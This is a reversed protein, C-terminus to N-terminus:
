RYTSLDSTVDLCRTTVMLTKSTVDLSRVDRRSMQVDRRSMQVDRRSIQVHGRSVQVDGNSNQVDRRSIQVDRPSMQLDRQSALLLPRLDTRAQHIWLARCWLPTYLRRHQGNSWGIWDPMYSEPSKAILYQSALVTRIQVTLSALVDSATGQSFSAVFTELWWISTCVVGWRSCSCFALRAVCGIQTASYFGIHFQQIKHM